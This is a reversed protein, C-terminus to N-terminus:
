LFDQLLKEDSVYGYDRQEITGTLADPAYDHVNKGVKLYDLVATALELFLRIWVAPIFTLNQV